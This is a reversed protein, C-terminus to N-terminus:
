HCEESVDLSLHRHLVNQDRAVIQLTLEMQCTRVGPMQRWLRLRWYNRRTSAQRAYDVGYQESLVCDFHEPSGQRVARWSAAEIAEGVAQGFNEGLSAFEALCSLPCLNAPYVGTASM